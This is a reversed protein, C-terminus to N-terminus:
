PKGVLCHNLLTTKKKDRHDGSVMLGTQPHRYGGLYTRNYEKLLRCVHCINVIRSNKGIVFAGKSPEFAMETDNFMEM